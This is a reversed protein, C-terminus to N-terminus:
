KGLVNQPPVGKPSQIGVARHVHNRYISLRIISGWPIAMSITSDDHHNFILHVDIETGIREARRRIEKLDIDEEM